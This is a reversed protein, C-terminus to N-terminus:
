DLWIVLSRSLSLVLSCRRLREKWANVIFLGLYEQFYDQDFFRQYNYKASYKAYEPTFTWSILVKTCEKWARTTTSVTSSSRTRAVKVVAQWSRSTGRKVQDMERPRQRLGERWATRAAVALGSAARRWM